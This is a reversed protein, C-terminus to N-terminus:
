PLYGLTRYQDHLIVVKEKLSELSGENNLVDDASRLRVDRGLQASIIDQVHAKSCKDRAVVRELQQEITCDIVLIRDVRDEGRTELLLPVAVICYVADLQSLRSKIERYVLPHLLDELMRRLSADAFVAQRLKERLLVGQNDFYAEGFSELLQERVAETETLHRAIVDADIVPVSFDNEFIKAVTSKGSGVGGTLGVVLM